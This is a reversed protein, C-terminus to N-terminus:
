CGINHMNFSEPIIICVISLRRCIWITSELDRIKWTRTGRLRFSKLSATDRHKKSSDRRHLSRKLALRASSSPGSRNQRGARGGDLCTIISTLRFVRNLRGWLEQLTKAASLCSCSLAGWDRIEMSACYLRSASDLFSRANSLRPPEPSDANSRLSSAVLPGWPAKIRTTEM